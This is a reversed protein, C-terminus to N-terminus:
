FGVRCDLLSAYYFDVSCGGLFWVWIVVLRVFWAFLGLECCLSGCRVIVLWWLTIM